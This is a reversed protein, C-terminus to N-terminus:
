LDGGTAASRSTGAGTGPAAADRKAGGVFNKGAQVAADKARDIQAQAAGRLATVGRQVPPTGWLAKAGRRIQLYRERGARTGLVYGVAAGLVFAFKGKM